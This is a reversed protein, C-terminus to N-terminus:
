ATGSVLTYARPTALLVRAPYSLYEFSLFLFGSARLSNRAKAKEHNM